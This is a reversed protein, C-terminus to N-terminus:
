LEKIEWRYIDAVSFEFSHFISLKPENRFM